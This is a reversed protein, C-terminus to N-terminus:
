YQQFNKLEYGRSSAILDSEYLSGLVVAESVAVSVRAVIEDVVPAREVEVLELVPDMEVWGAEAIIVLAPKEICVALSMRRPFGAVPNCISELSGHEICSVSEEEAVAIDGEEEAAAIDDEEGAVGIGVGEEAQNYHLGVIYCCVAVGCGAITAIEFYNSCCSEQFLM